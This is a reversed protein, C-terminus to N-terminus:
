FRGSPGIVESPEDSKDDLADLGRINALRQSNLYRRMEQRVRKNSLDFMYMSYQTKKADPETANGDARDSPVPSPTGSRSPEEPSGHQPM